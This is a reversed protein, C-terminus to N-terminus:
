AAPLAFTISYSGAAADHRLPCRLQRAMGHIIRSAPDKSGPALRDEGVFVDSTVSLTADQKVARATVSTVLADPASRRAAASVLETILFALPVATDQGVSLRAVDCIVSVAIHESQALGQELAACLDNALSRLDVGQSIGPTDSEYMWRHVIALAAVRAQVTAYARSVESNATERGQISLLSSVIQLNNKVRHHVERTLRKQEHLASQLEAEHSAISDAMTDFAAALEAIERSFFPQSGIRASGDGSTYREVGARMRALPEVILRSAIVWGIFLAALWMVMPAAIGLVQTVTLSNGPRLADLRRFNSVAVIAAFVGLPLLTLALSAMVKAALPWDRFRSRRPDSTM